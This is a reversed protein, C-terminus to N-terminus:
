IDLKPVNEPLTGAPLCPRASAVCHVRGDRGVSCNVSRDKAEAWTEYGRGLVGARSAWWAVAASKAEEETLGSAVGSTVTDACFAGAVVDAPAFFLAVATALGRM